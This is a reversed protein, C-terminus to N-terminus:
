NKLKVNEYLEEFSNIGKNFVADAYKFSLLGEHMELSVIEDKFYLHNKYTCICYITNLFHYINKKEECQGIDNDKKDVSGFDILYISEKNIDFLLNWTRIDNHYYGYKEINSLIMLLDNIIKKKNPIPHKKLIAQHINIGEIKKLYLYIGKKEELFKIIKPIGNVKNGFIKLFEAEKRFEEYFYEINGANKNLYKLFYSNNAFFIKGANQNDMGDISSFFLNDNKNYIHTNNDLKLIKTINQPLPKNSCIYIPRMEHSLHTKFYGINVYGYKFLDKIFYSEDEPLFKSWVDNQENKLALEIILYDSIESIKEILKRGIELGKNYGYKKGNTYVIHHLVSLVLVAGYHNKGTLNLIESINEANIEYDLFSINNVFANNNINKNYTRILRSFEVAGKDIDTCDVFAGIESFKFAFYGLQAGVDLINIGKFFDKNFFNTIAEFRDDCNRKARFLDYGYMPQYIENVTKIEEFVFSNYAHDIRDTGDIIKFISFQEIRLISNCNFYVYFDLLENNEVDFFIISFTIKEDGQIKTILSRVANDNESIKIEIHGFESFQDNKELLEFSAQLFYKGNNIRLREILGIPNENFDSNLSKINRGIKVSKKEIITKLDLVEIQM